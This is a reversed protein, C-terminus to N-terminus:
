IKNKVVFKIHILNLTRLDRNGLDESLPGATDYAPMKTVEFYLTYEGAKKFDITGINSITEPHYKAQINQVSEDQLLERALIKENVEVRIEIGPLWEKSWHRNTLAEIAYEGPNFIKFHWKLIGNNEHFSVPLGKNDIELNCQPSLKIIEAESSLLTVSGDATQILEQSANPTGDLELKVVSYYKDPANEPLGSLYLQDAINPNEQYVKVKHKVDALVIAKKVKNKLGNLQFSEGPWESFILYLNNDKATMMGWPFPYPYPGAGVGYVAEGNVKMWEGITKLRMVSQGPIVGEATPGINLLYNCGNSASRVLSYLLQDVSKWENDYSKFGWTHNLTAPVEGNMNKSGYPFENDGLVAYDGLKNGVRDCVLCDPQIDHVADVFKQSQEMTTDCATDYWVLGVPGYNTMLEKIQPICKRDVCRNFDTKNKNFNYGYQDPWENWGGDPHNWDQRQSYYICFKIGKKACATSLEKVVDRGFPTAEVINYPDVRSDFMAFGDHHKTGFVLYKMGADVALQVWADADFKVPNFEKALEMYESNPIEAFRMIQEGIGKIKKGKWTGAPISYLGWHIFLGFRAERWWSLKDIAM